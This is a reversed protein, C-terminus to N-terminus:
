GVLTTLSIVVFGNAIGDAVEVAPTGPLFSIVKTVFIDQFKYLTMVEITIVENPEIKITAKRSQCGSGNGTM